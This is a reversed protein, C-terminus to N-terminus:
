SQLVSALIIYIGSSILVAKETGTLFGSLLSSTAVVQVTWPTKFLQQPMQELHSFIKKMGIISVIQPRSKKPDSYGEKLVLENCGVEILEKMANDFLVVAMTSSDDMIIANLSYLYKPAPINHNEICLYEGMEKYTKGLCEPCKQNFWGRYEEIEKIRAKCTYRNASKKGGYFGLTLSSPPSSWCCYGERPPNRRCSFVPPPKPLLFSRRARSGDDSNRAEGGKVDATRGTPNVADEVNSMSANRRDNVSTSSSSCRHM